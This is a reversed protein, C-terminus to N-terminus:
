GFAGGFPVPIIIGWASIAMPEPAGCEVGVQMSDGASLGIAGRWNGAYFRVNAPDIDSSAYFIVRGTGGLNYFGEVTVAAPGATVDIGQVVYTRGDTPGTITHSLEFGLVSESAGFRAPFGYFSLSVPSSM